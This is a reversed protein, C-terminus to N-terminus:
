MYRSVNSVQAMAALFFFISIVLNSVRWTLSHTDTNQTDITKFDLRVDM